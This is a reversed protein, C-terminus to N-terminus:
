CWKGFPTSGSVEATEGRVGTLTGHSVSQSVNVKHLSSECSGRHTIWFLSLNFVHGLLFNLLKITTSPVLKLGPAFIM